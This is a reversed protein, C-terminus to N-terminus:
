QQTISGNPAQSGNAAVFNNGGTAITGGSISFNTNNDYIANRSIRIIGGVTKPICYQQKHSVLFSNWCLAPTPIYAM